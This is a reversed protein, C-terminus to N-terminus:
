SRLKYGPYHESSFQTESKEIEGDNLMEALAAKIKEWSAPVVSNLQPGTLGEEPGKSLASRIAEKTETM